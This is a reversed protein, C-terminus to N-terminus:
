GKDLKAYQKRLKKLKGRRRYGPGFYQRAFKKLDPTRLAQEIKGTSLLRLFDELQATESQQQHKVFDYVTEYGLKKYHYGMIQFMGWSTSRLAADPHIRMAKKVRKYEKVGKKKYEPSWKPYLVNKFKKRLAQMRIGRKKLRRWFIHGMFSVVPRGDGYFGYPLTVVKLVARVAPPPIGLGFAIESVVEDTLLVEAPVPKVKQSDSSSKGKKKNKTAARSQQLALHQARMTEVVGILNPIWMAKEQSSEEVPAPKGPSSLAIRGSIADLLRESIGQVRILDRKTRFPGNEERYAVIRRALSTGVGPLKLLVPESAANINIRAM